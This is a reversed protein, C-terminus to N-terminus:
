NYLCGMLAYQKQSNLNNRIGNGFDSNQPLTGLMGTSESFRSHGDTGCVEARLCPEVLGLVINWPMILQNMVFLKLLVLIPPVFSVVAPDSM